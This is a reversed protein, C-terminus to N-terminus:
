LHQHTFSHPDFFHLVGASFGGSIWFGLLGLAILVPAFWLYWRSNRKQPPQAEPEPAPAPSDMSLGPPQVAEYEEEIYVQAELRSREEIEQRAQELAALRAAEEAQLRAQQQEELQSRQAAERQAIQEPSEPGQEALNEL